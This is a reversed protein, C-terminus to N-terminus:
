SSKKEKDVGGSSSTSVAASIESSEASGDAQDDIKDEPTPMVDELREQLATLPIWPGEAGPLVKEKGNFVVRVLRQGKEDEAVDLSIYSAYPPWRDDYVKLAALVPVLTTDHGSFIVLKPTCPIGAEPVGTEQGRAGMITLMEELFPGLSLRAMERQNFWTGFMWATYHQLVDLVDSRMAEAPLPVGHAEFCTLVERVTTWKMDEVPVGVMKAKLEDHGPFHNSENAQDILRTQKGKTSRSPWLTERDNHRVYLDVGGSLGLGKLMNQASEHTRSVRTCRVFISSKEAELGAPFLRRGRERASGAGTGGDLVERLREGLLRM